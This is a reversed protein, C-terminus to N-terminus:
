EDNRDRKENMIRQQCIAPQALIVRSRWGSCIHQRRNPSVKLYDLERMDLLHRQVCFNEPRFKDVHWCGAVFGPVNGPGPCNFCIIYIFKGHIDIKM